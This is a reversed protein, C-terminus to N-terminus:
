KTSKLRLIYLSAIIGIAAPVTLYYVDRIFLCSSVTLSLWLACLLIIKRGPTLPQNGQCFDLYKKLLRNSNIFSKIQPEDAAFYLAALLFPVTPMIPLLAGIIGLIICLIALIRYLTRKM